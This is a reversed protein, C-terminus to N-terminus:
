YEWKEFIRLIYSKDCGALKRDNYDFFMSSYGKYNLKDCAYLQATIFLCTYNIAYLWLTTVHVYAQLAARSSPHAM